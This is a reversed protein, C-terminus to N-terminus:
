GSGRRVAPRAARGAATARSPADVGRRSATIPAAREGWVGQAPGRAVTARTRQVRQTSAACSLSFIPAESQSNVRRHWTDLTAPCSRSVGVRGDRTADAGRRPMATTTADGRHGRGVCGRLSPQM